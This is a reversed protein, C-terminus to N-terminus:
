PQSELHSCYTREVMQEVRTRLMDHVVTFHSQLVKYRRTTDLVFEARTNKFPFTLPIVGEVTRVLFGESGIEYRVTESPTKIFLRQGGEPLTELSIEDACRVDESLHQQAKSLSLTTRTLAALNAHLRLPLIFVSVLAPIMVGAMAMVIFLEILTFGSSRPRNM